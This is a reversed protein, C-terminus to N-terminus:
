WGMDPLFCRIRIRLGPGQQLDAEAPFEVPATRLSRHDFTAQLPEATGSSLLMGIFFENEANERVIMNSLTM